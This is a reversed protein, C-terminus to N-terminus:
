AESIESKRRHLALVQKSEILLRQGERAVVGLGGEDVLQRVRRTSVGLVQAAESTTFWPASEAAEPKGQGEASGSASATAEGQWVVATARLTEVAELAALLQGGSLGSHRILERRWNAPLLKRVILDAGVGSISARDGAVVSRASPPLGESM